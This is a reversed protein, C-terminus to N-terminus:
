CQGYYLTNQEMAAADHTGDIIDIDQQYGLENCLVQNGYFQLSKNSVGSCGALYCMAAIFESRPTQAAAGDDTLYLAAAMFADEPNWPNPPHNGTLAGIRDNAPNYTWDPASYGAYLAWTSPIFQAPGMAGGWGYWQKKSVPMTDPDLGLSRTIAAFIPADRTPNMDTQWNGTGVNQGLNSEEKIIGLLFAPRIGTKQEALQAYQLAQAFSIAHAGTLSFLAAQIQSATQQKSTILSQYAQAQGKTATLIQNKQNEQQQLQEQQLQQVQLLQTEQGLQDELDSKAQENLKTSSQIDTFSQQMSENIAGFQDIDAFFNSLSSSTLAAVVVSTTDLEDEERLIAALSAYEAQLQDNLGAITDEKQQISQSLQTITLNRREIALQSEQIQDTIIELDRELSTQQQETSTLSTQLASIQADIENLQTQLAAQESAVTPPTQALTIAPLLLAAGLFAGAFFVAAARASGTNM